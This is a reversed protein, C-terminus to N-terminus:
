VNVMSLSPFIVHTELKGVIEVVEMVSILGFEDIEPPFTTDSPPEGTVALPTTQDVLGLGVIEREVLVLSPVPIPFKEDLREPNLEFVV